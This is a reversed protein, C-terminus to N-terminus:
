KRNLKNKPKLGRYREWKEDSNLRIQLMSGNQWPFFLNPSAVLRFHNVRM